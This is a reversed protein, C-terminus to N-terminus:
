VGRAISNEAKWLGLLESKQVQHQLDFSFCLKTGTHPDFRQEEEQQQEAIRGNSSKESVHDNDSRSLKLFVFTDRARGPLVGPSWGNSIESAVQCANLFLGDCVRLVKLASVVISGHQIQEM